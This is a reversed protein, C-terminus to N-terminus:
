KQSFEMTLNLLRQQLKTQMEEYAEKLDWIYLSEKKYLEKKLGKLDMKHEEILDIDTLKFDNLIVPYSENYFEVLEMQFQIFKVEIDAMRIFHAAKVKNQLEIFAEYAPTDAKVSLNRINKLWNKTADECATNEIAHYNDNVWFMHLTRDSPPVYLQEYIDVRTFKELRDIYSDLFDLCEELNYIMEPLKERRAEQKTFELTKQNQRYTFRITLYVGLITIIGSVVSGMYSGFFAIWTNPEGNTSDFRFGMLSNVLIPSLVVVLLAFFGLVYPRNVLKEM